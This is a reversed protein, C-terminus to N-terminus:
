RRDYLEDRMWRGPALRILGERRIRDLMQLSHRRSEATPQQSRLTFTVRAGEPLDLQGDPKLVGDSYTGSMEGEYGM